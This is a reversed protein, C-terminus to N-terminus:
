NKPTGEAIGNKDTRVAESSGKPAAQMGAPTDGQPSSAPAGGSKTNIPGTPGHPQVVSGGPNDRSPRVDQALAASSCLMLAAISPIIKLSM